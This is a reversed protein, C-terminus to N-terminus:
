AVKKLRFAIELESTGDILKTIMDAVDIGGLTSPDLFAGLLETLLKKYPQIMARDVYIKVVGNELTYKLPLAYYEETSVINLGKYQALLEEVIVSLDGVGLDAGATKLFARSVAFFLKGNETYYSLAGAPLIEDTETGPFAHIAPDFKVGQSSILDGLINDSFIPTRYQAGFSGDNKLDIGVLGEKVFHSAIGDVFPLVDNMGMPLSGAPLGLMFSGDVTPINNPDAWTPTLTFYMKNFDDGTATPVEIYAPVYSGILESKFKPGKDEGDDCSAFSVLAAFAAALIASKHLLNKM